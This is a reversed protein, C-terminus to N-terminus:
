VGKAKRLAMVAAELDDYTAEQTFLKEATAIVKQEAAKLARDAYLKATRAKNEAEWRADNEARRRQIPTRYDESMANPLTAALAKGAENLVYDTGRWDMNRVYEAYHKAITKAIRGDVSRDDGLTWWTHVGTGRNHRLKDGNKMRILIYHHDATLTPAKKTTKTM